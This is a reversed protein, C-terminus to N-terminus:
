RLSAADCQANITSCQLGMVPDKWTSRPPCCIFRHFTSQGPALLQGECESHVGEIRSKLGLTFHSFVNDSVLFVYMEVWVRTCPM